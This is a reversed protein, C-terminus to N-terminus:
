EASLLWWYSEQGGVELELEVEGDVLGRVAGDDLPAGPGRLCTVLEADDALRHLVQRLTAAPEGWAMLEEDVFGIADGARFRGQADDRAAKAVAGTRLRGLAARM